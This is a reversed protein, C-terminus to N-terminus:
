LKLRELIYKGGVQEDSGFHYFVKERMAALKERYADKDQLLKNVLPLIDALKDPAISVGAEDRWTIDVPPTSLRTYEPNMVKMATNIFLTPKLTSFSYEYAITSWDTILLASTYVTKNSSFDLEFVLNEGVESSYKAIIKDLNAKYRKIYEPHPRVVVKFGKNILNDLLDSICSDLINDQQWSPAILITPLQSEATMNEYDAVLEGILPYGYDLLNKPKTGYLKELERIEATQHPGACFITDYNDFSGKEVVMHASTMYHMIHIYEVDKRLLSRKIHHTGLGTMTTVVLAADMRMMVSILARAGIYYPVLRDGHARKFVNDDPDSTIYHITIDSNALLYDILHKTYKYFGNAESYFVLKKNENENFLKVDRRERQRLEASRKDRSGLLNGLLALVNNFTWYILLASALPYLLVLFFASLLYLKTLEGKDTKPLTWAALVNVLTMLVPLLNLGFLLGDAQSLDKVFLFSQGAFMALNDEVMFFMAMLLPIQIFLGVMGFLEYFPNYHFQRYLADRLDAKRAKPVDMAEIKELFSQMKAKLLKPKDILPQALKILPSTILRVVIAVCLVAVGYSGTIVHFKVVLFYLLHELISM